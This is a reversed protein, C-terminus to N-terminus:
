NRWLSAVFLRKLARYLTIPDAFQQIKGAVYGRSSGVNDV